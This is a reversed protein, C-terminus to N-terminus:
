SVITYTNRKSTNESKTSHPRVEVSETDNEQPSSDAKLAPDTHGNPKGSAGADDAPPPSSTSTEQELQMLPNDIGKTTGNM